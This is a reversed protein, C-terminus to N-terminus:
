IQIDVSTSLSQYTASSTLDASNAPLEKCIFATDPCVQKCMHFCHMGTLYDNGDSGGVAHLFPNHSM